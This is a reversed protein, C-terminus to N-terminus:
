SRPMIFSDIITQLPIQSFTGDLNDFTFFLNVNPKWGAEMYTKLKLAFQERYEPLDIRGIHEIIIETKYDLPSLITFDSKIWVGNCYHPLEYIYPLRNYELVDGISIESKSRMREGDHREYKLSDAYKDPHNKLFKKKFATKESLWKTVRPDIERKVFEDEKRYLKPITEGDKLHPLDVYHNLANDIVSINSELAAISKKLFHVVKIAQVEQNDKNGLYIKKKTGKRYKYYYCTGDKRPSSYLNFGDYDQLQELQKSQSDLILKYFKRQDKLAKIVTDM